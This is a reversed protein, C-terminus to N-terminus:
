KAMLTQWDAPIKQKFDSGLLYIEGNEGKLKAYLYGQKDSAGVVLTKAQGDSTKISLSFEPEDLGTEEKGFISAFRVTQLNTLGKLFNEVKESDIKADLNETIAWNGEQDKILSYSGNKDKGEVDIESIVDPEINWITKNRWSAVDAPIMAGIHGKVLYVENEGEQRAYTTYMDPGTKGIYIDVLVKGDKDYLKVHKGLKDVEFTAQKEPNNSALSVAEIEALKTVVNNIKEADAKFKQENAKQEEEVSKINKGIETEQGSVTWGDKGKALLSGSLLHAVEIKQVKEPSLNKYLRAVKFDGTDSKDPREIVLVVLAILIAGILLLYSKKM